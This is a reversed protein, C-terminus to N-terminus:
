ETERAIDINLERLITEWRKYMFYKGLWLLGIGFTALFYNSFLMVLISDYFFLLMESTATLRRKLSNELQTSVPIEKIATMGAQLKQGRTQVNNILALPILFSLLFFIVVMVLSLKRM